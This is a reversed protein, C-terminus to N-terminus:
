IGEPPPPMAGAVGVAASRRVGRGTSERMVIEYALVEDAFGDPDEPTRMAAILLETARYAMDAIPQRVVTLSPWLRPAVMSDDFGTVALEDPLRVGRRHAEALIGAAMEDNGAAIATPPDPLDLLRRGAECGSEFTFAGAVILEPGDPLGHIALADCHGALREVSDSHTSPGTVFGIRRHGLAILHETMARMAARNDIRVTIADPLPGGTLIAACPLGLDGLLGNGSLLEAIPPVLLLADSGSRTLAELAQAVNGGGDAAADRVVLRLGHAATAQLAGVLIADLFPTRKDVYALGITTAWSSALGRAALNPRYGLEDIAQQVSASTAASAKGSGNMVNSVTMVSVGAREAVARITVANTRRRAKRAM